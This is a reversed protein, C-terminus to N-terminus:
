FNRFKLHTSYPFNTARVLIDAGSNEVISNKMEILM